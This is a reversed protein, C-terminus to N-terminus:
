PIGHVCIGGGRIEDFVRRATDVEGCRAYMELVANSVYLNHMFGKERSYNAIREGIELAGLNAIAPLVSAVTVENPEVGAGEMDLFTRLADGYEGNKMYADVLATGAYVDPGFGSEVFLTHVAGLFPLDLSSAAAPFVVTFTHENPCMTPPAVDHLVAGPPM